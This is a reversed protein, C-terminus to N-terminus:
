GMLKKITPLMQIPVYRVKVSVSGSYFFCSVSKLEKKLWRGIIHMNAFAIFSIIINHKYFLVNKIPKKRFSKIFMLNKGFPLVNFM